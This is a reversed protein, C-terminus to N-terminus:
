YGLLSLRVKLLHNLMAKRAGEEDRALLAAVIGEHEKLVAKRRGPNQEHRVGKLKHWELGDRARDLQTMTAILLENHTAESISLHLARDYRHFDTMSSAACCAEHYKAVRRLDNRTANRVAVMLLAPELVLRAEVLQAPSSDPESFGSLTNECGEPMTVFTGRGIQRVILGKAELRALVKRVASRSVGFKSALERETPLKEGQQFLGNSMGGILLTDLPDALMVDSRGEAHSM